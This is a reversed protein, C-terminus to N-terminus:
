IKGVARMLAAGLLVAAGCAINIAAWLGRRRQMARTRGKARPLALLFTITGLGVAAGMKLAFCAAYAAPATVRPWVACWQAVGTAAVVAVGIWKIWGFRRMVVALFAEREVAPLRALAPWLVARAYVLGGLSTCAAAIHLVRVLPTM